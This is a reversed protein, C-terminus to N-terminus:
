DRLKHESVTRCLYLLSCVTSPLTWCQTGRPLASSAGGQVVGLHRRRRCYNNNRIFWKQLERREVSDIEKNAAVCHYTVTIIARVQSMFEYSFNVEKVVVVLFSVIAQLAEIYHKIWRSGLM